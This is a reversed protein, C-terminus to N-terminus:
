TANTKHMQICQSKAVSILCWICVHTTALNTVASVVTYRKDYVEVPAQGHLDQHIHLSNAYLCLFM